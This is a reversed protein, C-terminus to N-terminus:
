QLEFEVAEVNISNGANGNVAIGLYVEGATVQVNSIQVETWSSSTPLNVSSQSGGSPTAFLTASSEGGSNEVWAALTYTGDPLATVDQWVTASFATSSTLSLETAEGGSQTFVAAPTTSTIQWGNLGSAFVPNIIQNGSTTGTFLFQDIAPTFQLVKSGIESVAGMSYNDTTADDPAEPEWYFIGVGMSNPVAEVAEIASKVDDAADMYDSYKYGIECIMVPKNYRAALTNLNTTITSLTGPGDYYSAGIADFSGGDAVLTDFFWEFTSLNSLTSLHIVVLSKPSAAKVAQYGSNILGALQTFNSTSGIPWLMGGDIENGVQVWKPTVGAAVLAQMFGYTYNYVATQMQAYDYSAWASPITQHGPDAWTDSYHFDILIQFGMASATQALAISGAQDTDGVGLVTSTITPNVFTRIRVATVGHNKLIQLANMQTQSEDVYSYGLTELQTLWSIDVGNAISSTATTATPPPTTTTVTTSGSSSGSGGGCSSLAVVGVAVIAAWMCRSVGNCTM